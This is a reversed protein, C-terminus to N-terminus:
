VVDQNLPQSIEYDGSRHINVTKIGLKAAIIHAQVLILKDHQAQVYRIKKVIGFLVVVAIILLTIVLQEITMDQWLTILKEM